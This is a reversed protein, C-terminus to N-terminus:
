NLLFTLAKENLQANAGFLNGFTKNKQTRTHTTWRTVGNFLAYDTPGLDSAEIEIAELMDSIQNLKRGSLKEEANKFTVDNDLDFMHRVFNETRDGDAGRENMAKFGAMLSEQNQDYLHISNEIQRIQDANSTTHFAKMGRNNLYSFQNQCRIMHNTNAVFFAKSSDHANGVAIFNEMKFGNIYTEPAELFALVKKGDQFEDFSKINYGTIQQLKYVFSAFLENRTPTYSEKCVNLVMGNDSRQLVKHNPVPIGNGLFIPKEVVEWSFPNMVETAEVTEVFQLEPLNNM